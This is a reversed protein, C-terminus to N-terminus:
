KVHGASKLKIDTVRYSFTCERACHIRVCLCMASVCSACACESQRVRMYLATRLHKSLPVIETRRARYELVNSKFHFLWHSTLLAAKLQLINVDM